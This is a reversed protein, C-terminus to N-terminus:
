IIAKKRIADQMESDSPTSYHEQIVAITDGTLKAVEEVRWGNGQCLKICTARLAHFPRRPIGAKDCYEQLRRHCTRGSYTILFSQKRDRSNILLKILRMMEKSIPVEHIRNKKHELFKLRGTGDSLEEIDSIRIGSNHKPSYGVDERRIGTSVALKLMVEDELNDICPQLFGWEDTSLAKEGTTYQTRKQLMFETEKWINEIHKRTKEKLSCNVKLLNVDANILQNQTHRQLLVDKKMICYRIIAVTEAFKSLDVWLIV